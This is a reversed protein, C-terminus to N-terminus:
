CFTAIWIVAALGTFAWWFYAIDGILAQLASAAQSRRRTAFGHDRMRSAERDDFEDLPM